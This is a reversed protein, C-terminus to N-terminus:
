AADRRMPARGLREKAAGERRWGLGLLERYRDRWGGRIWGHERRLALGDLRSVWAVREGESMRAQQGRPSLEHLALDVLAHLRGRPWPRGAREDRLKLDAGELMLVAWADRRVAPDEIGCCWLLVALDFGDM